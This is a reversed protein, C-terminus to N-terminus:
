GITADLGDQIAKRLVEASHRLAAEEGSDLPPVFPQSAGQASLVHPLSVCTEPVGLLEEMVTSVSFVV